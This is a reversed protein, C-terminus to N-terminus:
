KLNPQIISIKINKKAQKKFAPNDAIIPALEQKIWLMVHTGDRNVKNNLVESEEEVTKYTVGVKGSYNSFKEVNVFVIDQGLHRLTMLICALQKSM